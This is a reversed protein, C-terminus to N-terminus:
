LSKLLNVLQAIDNAVNEIASTLTALDQSEADPHGVDRLVARVDAILTNLDIENLLQRIQAYARLFKIVTALASFPNM